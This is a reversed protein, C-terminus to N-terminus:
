WRFGIGFDIHVGPKHAHYYDRYGRAYHPNDRLLPDPRRGYHADEWGKVYLDRSVDRPVVPTPVPVVVVPPQAPPAVPQQPAPQPQQPQVPAQQVPRFDHHHGRDKDKVLFFVVPLAIMFMLAAVLAVVLTTNNSKEEM